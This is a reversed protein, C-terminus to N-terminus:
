PVLGVRVFVSYGDPDHGYQADLSAPIRHASILAGVGFRLHAVRAFYHVYGLSAKEILFTQGSLAAGPAELDDKGVRELRAILVHHEGLAFASDLLWGETAQGASPADRGYALISQWHGSEFPLDYIASATTRRVAVQPEVQEPSALRGTSAQLAWHEDPNFSLRASTSDFGRMQVSYRNEDPERGNFSSLELKWTRWVAGVTAVGFTVHTADLWHHTLPADPNEDSAFRHIFAPPGLAPEGVPGGYIFLSGQGLTRSYSAALEMILNHPHQHDVLPTRGDATEGTQFLLPYGQPGDLPELSAMAHLALAGQDLSREAMFMLDSENFTDSNGRPGGQHTYVGSLTGHLMTMWEGDMGHIATMDASDPVWSTGSSDRSGPYSGLAGTMGGEAQAGAPVAGLLAPM